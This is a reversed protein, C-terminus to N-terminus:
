PKEGSQHEPLTEMLTLGLETVMEQAKQELEPHWVGQPEHADCGFIVPAGEEAAAEWFLRNPYHRNRHMGLFNIELPVNCSRATRCIRRMQGRYEKESGTFNILDPHAVYAFCGTHIGEIVQDCYRILTRLDDTEKGSYPEGIEDGVFHQGLLLYEVPTDKLRTMLDPFLGPYYEVELGLRIHLRDGYQDKLSLVTKIYDELREKPMRFYSYYDGPFWYPTHESFGLIQLGGSLAAQVYEEESGTAHGCRTTHTHYNAIM